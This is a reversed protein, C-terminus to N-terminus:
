ASLAIPHALLAADRTLLRAGLSAAQALLMEDFPDHHLVPPVLSLSTHEPALPVLDIGRRRAYAVAEGPALLDHRGSKAYKLWKIRMEWFSIASAFLRVKTDAILQQEARSILEPERTMWLLFHTDLLIKM